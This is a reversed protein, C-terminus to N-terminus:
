LKLGRVYDALARRADDAEKRATALDKGLRELQTELDGMKAATRRGLDSNQPLAQLNERLRVQDAVTENREHEVTGIRREREAVTARLTAVRALAERVAAPLEAAAAYVNIRDSSLDTLSLQEQRPREAAVTLTATGGAPVEVPLRYAGPTTNRVGGAPEVLTWGARRPHEVLVTRAERAAGALTYTTTQRETITLQLLGDAITARSLTQSPQENRDVKVKQDVAVSLLRQEGAPLAPLQADGVYAVNGGDREYLTLVGPPLGTGADNDLRVAALPHRPQTGPQYLDIRAAPVARAVIPLLLSSGNPASVPQPYRFVVQTTAETAEAAAPQAPRQPAPAMKVMAAPAGAGPAPPAYAAEDGRAAAMPVAVTGEDPRPLVRGLVEVPVEPRNVYYATYLAQRFTVPNGSVVTLEVGNWDAGSMNELVAWGQLDGAKAEGAPLTLRYTAKCLPAAVVYAVRVTRAGDGTARITLRRRDRATHRASAALAADVQAQLAPDVLRLAESDELLVQQLGAQTMLSVRHRVTTGAGDPLAVAEETVSLLRGTIERSGAARVEAGKLANLLAIPSELAEPGFPLERFLERLPEEGPLGITGVGGRDDYVVISKLVDDVQDRRVELTLEADGNVTAEHEFYGVGGTSLLVRKLTLGDAALVPPALVLTATLALLTPRIM